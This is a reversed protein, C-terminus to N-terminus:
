GRKKDSSQVGPRQVLMVPLYSVKTAGCRAVENNSLGPVLSQSRLNNLEATSLKNMTSKDRWTCEWIPNGESLTRPM